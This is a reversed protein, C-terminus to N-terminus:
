KNLKPLLILISTRRKYNLYEKNSGWKKDASKELLPIGSVFILLLSIFIPSILAVVASCLELSQVAYIYFGIWVLIEGFYNPHRSYRWLGYDIWKGKNKLNNHFRSKQLDAITEITLGLIFVVLGVLALFNFQNSNSYIALVVSSMLVWVTVGQLLWFQGFKFFNSRMSDFRSDKGAKIVRQLLFGGIRIAWVIVMLLITTTYLTKENLSYAVIAIILFTLAYSADTLKDSQLKYAVLFLTINFLLSIVLFSLLIELM